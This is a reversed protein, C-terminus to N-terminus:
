PIVYDPRGFPEPLRRNTVTALSGLGDGRVRMLGKRCDEFRLLGVPLRFVM